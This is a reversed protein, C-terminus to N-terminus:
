KVQGVLDKVPDCVSGPKNDTLKCILATLDKTETEEGATEGSGVRYYRCGLVLTPIGGTSYKQFINSDTESDINEHYSVLDGFNGIVKQVIPKQWTCHPCTTSGFFYVIPKGNEQCIADSGVSFNGITKGTEEAPKEVKTLDITQPFIFNGDKTMQWKVEQGNVDFTIKYFGNDEASDKLVATGQGRLLNTNVYDILRKGAEQTSIVKANNSTVPPKIYSTYIVSGAILIGALILGVPVLFKNM